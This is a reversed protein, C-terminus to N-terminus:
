TRGRLGVWMLGIGVVVAIAGLVLWLPDGTMFSNGQLLGSGQAMWVAGTAVIIAGGITRTRHEM